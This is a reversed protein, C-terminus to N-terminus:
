SKLNSSIIQCIRSDMSKKRSIHHFDLCIPNKEGCFKCGYFKKYRNIFKLGVKKYKKLRALTKERGEQLNKYPM